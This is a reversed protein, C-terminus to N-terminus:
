DGICAQVHDRTAADEFWVYMGKMQRSMLIRYARAVAAKLALNAPGLEDKEKRARRLSNRVGSEFVVDKDVKWRDDRWLLDGLWLLGTYDFDFGRVAYACGVESIADVAMM